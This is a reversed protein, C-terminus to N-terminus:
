VCRKWGRIGLARVYNELRDTMQEVHERSGDFGRAADAAGADGATGAATDAEETNAEASEETDASAREATNAEASKETDASM